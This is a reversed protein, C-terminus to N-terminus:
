GGVYEHEYSPPRESNWGFSVLTANATDRVEQWKPNAHLAEETWLNQNKTGGMEDFVSGLQRLFSKQEQSVQGEDNDLVCLSWHDFNLALEEVKCVSDPFLSLQIDAPMALAQLSHKLRVLLANWNDIDKRM